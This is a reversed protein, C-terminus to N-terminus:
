FINETNFRELIMDEGASSSIKLTNNIFNITSILKANNDSVINFRFCIQGYNGIKSVEDGEFLTQVYSIIDKNCLIKDIGEIKKIKGKKLLIALNCAPLPLCLADDTTIHYKELSNGLSLNIMMALLDIGTEAKVIHYHQEGTLRYAMEYIYIVGNELVGQFLLVGNNINLRRILHKVKDNMYRCYEPLHKSPFITATPLPPVGGAQMIVHRDTMASLHIDGNIVTYYMEVGYGPVFHELIVQKSKSFFIAKEYANKLDNIDQCVTIGRSGYSDTPKMIVPFMSSQLSMIDNASVTYEPVVPLGCSRCFDKFLKKNSTIKLQEETAYFPLNLRQCLRLANWTNLDEFGAFVADIHEDKAIKELLDIDTTSIDYAKNAIKKAPSTPSYDCVISYLGIDSAKKVVDLMHTIGGLILIKKQSRIM